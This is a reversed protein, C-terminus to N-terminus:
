FKGYNTCGDCWDGKSWPKDSLRGCQKCIVPEVPEDLGSEGRVASYTGFFRHRRWSGARLEGTFRPLRHLSSQGSFWGTLRPISGVEVMLPATVVVVEGGYDEVVRPFVAGAEM